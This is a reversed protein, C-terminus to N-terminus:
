DYRLIVKIGVINKFVTIGYKPIIKTNIGRNLYNIICKPAHHILKQSKVYNYKYQTMSVNLIDATTHSLIMYTVPNPFVSWITVNRIELFVM